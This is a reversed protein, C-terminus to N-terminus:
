YSVQAALIVENGPTNDDWQLRSYALQLKAENGRIYWNLGADVQWLEDTNGTGNEDLNPDWYSARVIPQLADIFTWALAAYFGNSSIATGDSGVDRGFIYEGQFLFPGNEYRVDGEWRDKTGASDREGVSDYAVAALTLGEVPYFELRLALDKQDNTEFTNLGAGNFVGASFGFWGFKKALRLGLDRRDGLRRVVLAREPLLLRSTSNYAEWSVPIKFQGLSIDVYPTLFTTFYDQFVSVASVPQRVTVQEPNEPDTPPPDQNEVDITASGFELVKAADIMLAYAVWGPVIEGRASLEARRVRFMETVDADVDQEDSVDTVFWGQLLIGPRFFGGTGAAVRDPWPEEEAAAPTTGTPPSAAPPATQAAAGGAATAVLAWAGLVRAM